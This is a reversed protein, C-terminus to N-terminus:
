TLFPADIKVGIFSAIQLMPEAVQRKRTRVTRFSENEVHTGQGHLVGARVTHGHVM